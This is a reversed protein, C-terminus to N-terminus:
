SLDEIFEYEVIIRIIQNNKTQNNLYKLYTMIESPKFIINLANFKPELYLLEEEKTTFTLIGGWSNRWSPTLDFIVQLSDEREKKDNLIEYDRHSFKDLSITKYQLSFETITELYEIWERSKFFEVCELIEPVFTEKINLTSKKHELPKFDKTFSTKELTKHLTEVKDEDFFDLLQIFGEKDFFEQMDQVFEINTYQKNIKM